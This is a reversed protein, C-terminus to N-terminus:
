PTRLNKEKRKSPIHTKVHHIKYPKKKTKYKYNMWKFDCRNILYLLDTWAWKDERYYILRFGSKIIFKSFRNSKYWRSMKCNGSSVFINENIETQISKKAKKQRVEWLIKVLFFDCNKKTLGNRCQISRFFQIEIQFEISNLATVSSMMTQHVCTQSIRLLKSNAIKNNMLNESYAAPVTRSKIKM